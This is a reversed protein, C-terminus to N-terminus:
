LPALFPVLRKRGMREALLDSSHVFAENQVPEYVTGIVM